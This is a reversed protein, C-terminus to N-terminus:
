PTPSQKAATIVQNVVALQDPPTLSKAKRFAVEAADPKGAGTRYFVGQALYGRFDSPNETVIRDYAAEADKGHGKWSSYVRAQLLQADIEDVWGKKSFTNAYELALGNRGDKGLADLYGRLINSSPTTTQGDKDLVGADILSRYVDVARRPQGDAIWTEALASVNEESGDVAVLRELFPLAKPYDDLALYSQAAQKLKDIDDPTSALAEEVAEAQKQVEEKVSDSLKDGSSPLPANFTLDTPIFVVVLACAALFAVVRIALGNGEDEDSSSAKSTEDAMTRAMPGSPQSATQAGFDVKANMDFGGGSEGGTSGTAGSAKAAAGEARVAKLKEEFSVGAGSTSARADRADNAGGPASNNADLGVSGARANARSVAEAFERQKRDGDDEAFEQRRNRGAREKAARGPGNTKKRNNGGGRRARTLARSGRPTTEVGRAAMWTARPACRMARTAM